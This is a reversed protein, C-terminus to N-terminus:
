YYTSLHSSKIVLFVSEYMARNISALSLDHFTGTIIRHGGEGEVQEVLRLLDRKVVSWYALQEGIMDYEPCACPWPLRAEPTKPLDEPPPVPAPPPELEPAPEGRQKKAEGGMRKIEETKFEPVVNEPSGMTTVRQLKNSSDFALVHAGGDGKKLDAKMNKVYGDYSEVVGHKEDLDSLISKNDDKLSDWMEGLMKEAEGKKVEDKKLDWGKTKDIFDKLMKLVKFRLVHKIVEGNQKPQQLQNGSDDAPPREITVNDKKIEFKASEGSLHCLGDVRLLDQESKGHSPVTLHVIFDKVEGAYLVPISIEGSRGGNTVKRGYGGADITTISVNPDQVALDIKVDSAVVTKLGGLCLAFSDMIKALGENSLFSYTGCSLDAMAHLAGPDHFKSFGFTHVAPTHDMDEMKNLNKPLVVKRWDDRSPYDPSLESKAREPRVGEVGDSLFVIFGQRKPKDTEPRSGLIGIAKVLGPAFLTDGGAQISDVWKKKLSERERRDDPMETLEYQSYSKVVNHNFAVISLRDGTDLQDMIFKMADKLLDLRSPGGDTRYANEEPSWGMSGSVDLVAVLDVPARRTADTPARVRVLVEFDERDKDRELASLVPVTSVTVEVAQQQKQQNTATATAQIASPSRGGGSM